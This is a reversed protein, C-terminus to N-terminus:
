AHRLPLRDQNEGLPLLGLRDIQRVPVPHVPLTHNDCDILKVPRRQLKDLRSGGLAGSIKTGGLAPLPIGVVLVPADEVDVLMGM